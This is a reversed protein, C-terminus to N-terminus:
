QEIAERGADTFPIAQGQQRRDAPTVAEAPLPGDLLAELVQGQHFTLAVAM